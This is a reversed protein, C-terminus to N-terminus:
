DITSYGTEDDRGKLILEEARKFKAFTEKRMGPMWVDPGYALSDLMHYNKTAGFHDFEWVLNQQDLGFYILGASFYNTLGRVRMEKSMKMGGKEPKVPMINFYTNRLQMEAAFWNQYIGSFLVEEIAVLRPQWKAVLRFILDCAEPPRWSDKLSELIFCRKKDDTGTVVIGALGSMAPDYLICIDLDSVNIHETTVAGSSWAQRITLQRNPVTWGYYRKWEKKFETAGATPNNAYQANFVKPNQKLIALADSTFGGEPFIPVLNGEKDIEEVGRIYKLLQDGYREHIHDYLDDMAWRTGILDFHDIGFDSFFPQINDFWQKAAEMLTESDRAKDGILDDFKMYNYHRGQSRGGVGMTDITPEPWTSKRPLELEHRNIRHKSRQPICEPFLGMLLPNSLFHATIAFLFNSAQGDTEHCILVRADTGLNRPHPEDGIDDPLVIQITDGLTEITSKYHGRPLLIERFRSRKNREHWACLHGHLNPSLKNYGLIGTCLFYLDTKARRRLFKITEDDFRTLENEAAARAKKVNEDDLISRWQTDSVEGEANFDQIKIM